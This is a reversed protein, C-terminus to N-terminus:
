VQAPDPREALGHRGAVEAFVSAVERSWRHYSYRLGAHIRAANSIRTRLDTDRSMRDIAAALAAPDNADFVIGLQGNGMLEPLAGRDSAIVPVGLLQAEAAVLGFPEQWVSPVLVIDASGMVRHVDPRAGIFHVRDSVQARAAMRQLEDVYDAAAADSPDGTVWLVNNRPLHRLAEVALHVGKHKRVAACPLLLTIQDASRAPLLPPAIVQAADEGVSAANLVTVLREPDVGMHRAEGASFESIAIVRACSCSALRVLPRSILSNRADTSVSLPPGHWHWVIAPPRRSRASARAGIALLLERHGHVYCIDYDSLHDALRLAIRALRPAQGAIDLSRRLGRRTSLASRGPVGIRRDVAVGSREMADMDGDNGCLEAYTVQFGPARSLLPLGHELIRRVGGFYTAIFPVFVRTPRTM